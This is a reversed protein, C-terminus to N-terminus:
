KNALPITFFFTAGKGEESEVWIRGRHREVIKKAIALGVGTGPYEVKSHLRQFMDFIKDAYEMSLGIGNDEVAFVLEKGDDHASVHVQPSKEGHFKIANGILNELLLVMQSRDAIVTPLADYTLSAGSDKISVRLDNLVTALVEDMNVTIFSKGKTELRSYALLDSIMTSMRAAGDIAFHMYKLANDDLKDSYNNELLQLYSTVMRLPEKLDHSAVYAFQELDANSRALENTRKKLEEEIRKRNSVDNIISYLLPRGRIFIPGSYVEVDRVEGNALRHSIDFRREVGSIARSMESKVKERSLTNIDFIKMKLLDEDGYGYYKFAAQNADVIDGTSPDILLMPANNDKFLSRYRAESEALAEEANKRESIDTVISVAGILKGNEDKVPAASSILTGHSGDGRRIVVEDGPVVEGSLLAKAMAHEEPKLESKDEPHYTKWESYEKISSTPLMSYSFIKEFAENKIVLKGSADAVAVGLPMHEIIAKLRSREEEVAKQVSKIESIDRWVNIAAVIRGESDRIPAASIIIELKRGDSSNLVFEINQTEEGLRAARYLPMEEPKPETGEPMTLGYPEYHNGIPMGIFKELPRGTMTMTYRSITKTLFDPPGGTITIGEPVNEMISNLTRHSVDRDELVQNLREEIKKREIAYRVAREILDGNVRSKILYDQAGHRIAEIAVEIHDDTTLGVVPIKRYTEKILDLIENSTAEPLLLDIVVVDAEGGSILEMGEKLTNVTKVSYQLEPYTRFRNTDMLQTFLARDHINNEVLLIRIFESSM